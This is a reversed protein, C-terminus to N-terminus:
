SWRVCGSRGRKRERAHDHPSESTTEVWDGFAGGVAAGVLRHRGVEVASEEDRAAGERVVQEDSQLGAAEEAREEEEGGDGEDVEGVEEEGLREGDLRQDEEGEGAELDAVDLDHRSGHQRAEVRLVDVRVRPAHEIGEALPVNDGGARAHHHLRENPRKEARVAHQTRLQM